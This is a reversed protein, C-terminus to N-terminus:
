QKGEKKHKNSNAKKSESFFLPSGSLTNFHPNRICAGKM